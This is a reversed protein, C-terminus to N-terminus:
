MMPLFANKQMDPAYRPFKYPVIPTAEWSSVKPCQFASHSGWIPSAGGRVFTDGAPSPLGGFDRSVAPCSHITDASWVEVAWWGGGGLVQFFSQM